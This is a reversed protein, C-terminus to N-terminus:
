SGDDDKDSKVEKATDLNVTLKPQIDSRTDPFDGSGLKIEKRAVLRQIEAMAAEEAAGIAERRIIWFGAFAVVGLFVALTALM